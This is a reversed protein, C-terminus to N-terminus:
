QLNITISTNSKLDFSCDTFKPPGMRPKPDRSAGTPEKPIGLFNTDLKGNGNADHFVAVAYTGPPLEPIEIKALGDKIPVMQKAVAKDANGPFTSADKHVALRAGGKDSQFGKVTITLTFSQAALSCILFPLIALFRM